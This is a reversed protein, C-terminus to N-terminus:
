TTSDVVLRIDSFHAHGFDVHSGCKSCNTIMYLDLLELGRNPLELVLKNPGDNPSLIQEVDYIVESDIKDPTRISGPRYPAAALRFSITPGAHHEVEITCTVQSINPQIFCEFYVISNGEQMPHVLISNRHSHVMMPDWGLKTYEPREVYTARQILEGRVLIERKKNSKIVDIEFALEDLADDICWVSEFFSMNDMLLQAAELWRVSEKLYYFLYILSKNTDYVVNILDENKNPFPRARLFHLSQNNLQEQAGRGQELFLFDRLNEKSAELYLDAVRTHYAHFNHPRATLRTPHDRYYYLVEPLLLHKFGALGCRAFLEWDEAGIKDESFGGLKEYASKRFLANSDGFVNSFLGLQTAGGLPLFPMNDPKQLDEDVSFVSAICTIVDAGSTVAGKALASVMHPKSINDDDCFILYEGKAIKAGANRAAGLFVDPTRLVRVKRALETQEYYSVAKSSAALKSGDDVLIIEFHPYSQALLADMARALFAPRDHHVLIVSIFPQKTQESTEIQAGKNPVLGHWDAYIDDSYVPDFGLKPISRTTKLIEEQIRDALVRAVKYMDLPDTIDILHEQRTREDLLEPTGGRNTAIFNIGELACEYVVSPLNEDVSPMVALVGPRKLYSLAENRDKDPLFRIANRCTGINEYLFTASHQGFINSFKGLVTIKIDSDLINSILRIADVFFHFGKRMEQRGFFVIEKIPTNVFSADVIKQESAAPMINKQVFINRRNKLLNEQIWNALYHSPSIVYDANELASRELFDLELMPPSSLLTGMIEWGWRSLGHTVVCLATNEFAVGCRKAQCSSFACGGFDLFHIIDFHNVKLWQYVAMSRRHPSSNWDETLVVDSIFVLKIREYSIDQLAKLNTRKSFDVNAIYLVTVDHGDAALRKALGYTATGAGGNRFFGPLEETVFCIQNHAANRGNERYNKVHHELSQVTETKSQLLNNQM